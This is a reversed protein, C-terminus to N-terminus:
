FLERSIRRTRKQKRDSTDGWGMGTVVERERQGPEELYDPISGQEEIKRLHEQKIVLAELREMRELTAYALPKLEQEITHELDELKTYINKVTASIAISRQEREGDSSNTELASGSEDDDDEEDAEGNAADADIDWINELNRKKKVVPATDNKTFPTSSIKRAARLAAAQAVIAKPASTAM